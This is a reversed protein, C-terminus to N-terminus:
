KKSSDSPKGSDSIDFLAVLIGREVEQGETNKQSKKQTPKRDPKKEEEGKRKKNEESPQGDCRVSTNCKQCFELFGERPRKNIHKCVPCAFFLSGKSDSEDQPKGSFDLVGFPMSNSSSMAFGSSFGCGTNVARVPQSALAAMQYLSAVDDRNGENRLYTGSRLESAVSDAKNIIANYAKKLLGHVYSANEVIMLYRRIYPLCESKVIEFERESLSDELDRHFFAQLDDLSSVLSEDPLLVVPSALLEVDDPDDSLDLDPKLLRMSKLTEEKTLGSMTRLVVIESESQKYQMDIFNHNYISNGWASSSENGPRSAFFTITGVPADAMIEEIKKQGIIEAEERLQDHRSSGMELRKLRGKEYWELLPKGQIGDRMVGKEDIVDTRRSVAANLREGLLTVLNFEITSYLGEIRRTYENPDTFRLYQLDHYADVDFQPDYTLQQSEKSFPHSEIPLALEINM